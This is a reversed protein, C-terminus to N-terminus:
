VKKLKVDLVRKIKLSALYAEPNKPDFKVKDPLFTEVGRSSNKPIQTVGLEKAAARWLDERNGQAIVKRIGDFDPPIKGWRVNETLFWLDHSKYPYSANNKWFRMLYPSNQVVRGDGYDVIGKMRPLLDAAPVNAFERGALVKVLEDRNPMVDCWQQAEMVAMLVAKTAKPYKDVWAARMTLAKEPHDRWLEGTILATYGIKQSVARAHWPDGVCFGALNGIKMNAVLQGAPVIISEIDNDPDIGGAALWYRMMLDSTGGPFTSAFKYKRNQEKAKLVKARILSSDLKPGESKFENSVTIGQGDINLALPTYMPIKKNGKTIAGLSMLFGIPRLVMSADIGGGDGGLELNDRIVAYSPLKVLQVDKLGYKAFYGKERAMILPAADAQGVFGIKLGAVEPTDAAWAYGPNLFSSAAAAGAAVLLDRRTLALKSTPVMLSSTTEKASM